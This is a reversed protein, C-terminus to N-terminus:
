KLNKTNKYEKYAEILMDKDKYLPTWGLIKHTHSIDLVYEEDAIKYQEDYMIEFGIKGFIELIKKVMHANTPILISRSGIEQIIEALLTKIPPPADSGLNFAENPLTGKQICLLVAKACDLASVMQYCNEGKGIMPVPLNKAMLAFLKNLIGFRGKGVIMRPRFISIQFGQKRYSECIKESELKSKGYYGFPNKPHNLDIPLYQPKGYVMDTSFYILNKCSDRQMAKLLRETGETNLAYFYKERQNKPPKLHYQRAALHIVIDDPHFTFDFDQTLDIKFFQTKQENPYAIDLNIVEYGSELLLDIVYGGLFGSGGIVVCRM